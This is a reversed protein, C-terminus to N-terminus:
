PRGIPGVIIKEAGPIVPTDSPSAAREMSQNDLDSERLELPQAERLVALARETEVSGRPQVAIVSRGELVARAFLQACGEAEPGQFFQRFHQLLKASISEEPVVQAQGPEQRSTLSVRDTPFGDKVLRTRVDEAAQHDAFLAAIVASM